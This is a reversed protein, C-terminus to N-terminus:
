LWDRGRGSLWARDFDRMPPDDILKVRLRTLRLASIRWAGDDGKAYEEEYHGFGTYGRSVGHGHDLVDDFEVLDFMAWVGKAKTPETIVIEPMHGHHITTADALRERTGAVFEDPSRYVRATGEFTCNDTFL